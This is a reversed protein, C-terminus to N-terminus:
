LELSEKFRGPLLDSNERLVSDIFRYVEIDMVDERTPYPFSSKKTRYTTDRSSRLEETYERFTAPDLCYILKKEEVINGHEDAYHYAVPILQDNKKETGFFILDAQWFTRIRSEDMTLKEKNTAEIMEWTPPFAYKELDYEPVFAIKNILNYSLQIMGQTGTQGFADNGWETNIWYNKGKDRYM